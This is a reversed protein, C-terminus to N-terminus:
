DFYTTWIKPGLISLFSVSTFKFMFRYIGSFNDLIGTRGLEVAPHKANPYILHVSKELLEHYLMADVWSVPMAQDYVDLAEKSLEKLVAQEVEADMARLLKQITTVTMGKVKIMTISKEDNNIM